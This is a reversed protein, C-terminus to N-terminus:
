YGRGPPASLIPKEAWNRHKKKSHASRGSSQSELVERAIREINKMERRVSAEGLNIDTAIEEYTKNDKRGEVIEQQKPTLRERIKDWLDKAEVEQFLEASRPDSIETGSGCRLGNPAYTEHISEHLIRGGLKEIKNKRRHVYKAGNSIAGAVYNGFAKVTQHKPFEGRDFKELLELTKDGIVEEIDHANSLRIRVVKTSLPRVENLLEGFAQRDGANAAKLLAEKYEESDERSFEIAM